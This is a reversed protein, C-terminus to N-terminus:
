GNINELNGQRAWQRWEERQWARGAGPTDALYRELKVIAVRQAAVQRSLADIRGRTYSRTWRLARAYDRRDKARAAYYRRQAETLDTM